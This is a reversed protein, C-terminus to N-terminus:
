GIHNAIVVHYGQDLYNTLYCTTHRWNSPYTRAVVQRTKRKREREELEKELQDCYKNLANAYEQYDIDYAIVREEEGKEVICEANTVFNEMVPKNM